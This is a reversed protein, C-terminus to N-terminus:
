IYDPRRVLRPDDYDKRLPHGEFEEPLFIRRLDPHGTFEIGFLDFVEREPWLAAPWIDFASHAQPESRSIPTKVFVAGSLARSQLRHVLEFHDHLDVATVFGLRDFGARELNALLDHLEDPGPRLVAYGGEELLGGALQPASEALRTKLSDFEETM